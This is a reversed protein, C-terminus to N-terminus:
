EGPSFGGALHQFVGRLFLASMETPTGLTQFFQLGRGTMEVADPERARIRKSQGRGGGTVANAKSKQLFGFILDDGVQVLM